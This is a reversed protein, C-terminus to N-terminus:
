PKRKVLFTKSAELLLPIPASHLMRLAPKSPNGPASLCGVDRRCGGGLPYYHYSRYPTPPRATGRRLPQM